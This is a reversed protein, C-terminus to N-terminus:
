GKFDSWIADIKVSADGIDKLPQSKAIVDSPVNKAENKTYSDPLLAVAAKNPNTYPFVGSISASVEADLIYNIFRNANGPHKAGKFVMMGDAGFYIGEQPFVCEIDPDQEMALAAEANYILGIACEGNLMETKPSAGDFVKINPKLKVLYDRAAALGADSTDNIDYGSAMLAMGVVARSDEIVVLQNAYAPKLLDQYSKIDDKIVSRNVAIVVGAGMYPVSYDNDPDYDKGLYSPDINKYNTLLSKDLKQLMGLKNFIEVYTSAPGILMDYTGEASSKVKALMDDPTDYTTMNIRVGTEQEFSSIVDDPLYESWCIVNLEKEESSAPAAGTESADAAGESTGAPSAGGSGTSACGALTFAAMAALMLIAFLQKLIKKM